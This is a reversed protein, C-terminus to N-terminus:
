LACCERVQRMCSLVSGGLSMYDRVGFWELALLDGDGSAQGSARV